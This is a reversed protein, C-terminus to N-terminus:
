IYSMQKPSNLATRTMPLEAVKFSDFYANIAIVAHAAVLLETRSRGRAGRVRGGFDALLKQSGAILQDRMHLLAAIELHGTAATAALIAGGLLKDIAKLTRSDGTGLIRLADQYTLQRAM